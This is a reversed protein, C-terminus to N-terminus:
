KMEFHELVLKINGMETKNLQYKGTLASSASPKSSKKSLTIQSDLLKVSMGKIDNYYLLQLNLSKHLQLLFKNELCWLAAHKAEKSTTLAKITDIDINPYYNEMLGTTV